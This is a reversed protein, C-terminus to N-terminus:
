GRDIITMDLFKVGSLSIDEHSSGSTIPHQFRHLNMVHVLGEDLFCFCFLFLFIPASLLSPGSLLLTELIM